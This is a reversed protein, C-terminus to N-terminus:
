LARLTLTVKDAQSSSLNGVFIQGGNWNFNLRYSNTASVAYYEEPKDGSFNVAIVKGNEGNAAPGGIVGVVTTTSSNTQITLSMNQPKTPGQVVEGYAVDIPTGIVISKPTVGPIGPGIAQVLIPTDAHESINTINLNNARYNKNLTWPATAGFPLLQEIVPSAASTIAITGENNLTAKNIAAVIVTGNPTQPMSVQGDKALTQPSGNWGAAAAAMKVGEIGPITSDSM